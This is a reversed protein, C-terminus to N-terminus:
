SKKERVLSFRYYDIERAGALPRSFLAQVSGREFGLAELETIAGLVEDETLYAITDPVGSLSLGNLIAELEVRETPPTEPSLSYEIKRQYPSVYGKGLAQLIKLLVRDREWPQMRGPTPLVQLLDLVTLLNVGLMRSVFEKQPEITIDEGGLHRAVAVCLAFNVIFSYQGGHLGYCPKDPDGLVEMSDTGADLSTLRGGPALLRRAEKITAFAGLNVPVIVLDDIPKMFEAIVKRYPVRKWDIPGYEKEWIIEDLFAPQDRLKAVDRAGFDKVFAFWDPFERYKADSLNPRLREEILEGDKRLIIKTRLDSWLENCLIWHLSGDKIAAMDQVDAQLTAIHEQHPQLDPHTLAAQLTGRHNDVLVYQTRRYLHGDKDLSKLHSLFCAALNGNGCGWEQIVLRTPLASNERHAEHFDAALAHALRYDSGAMTQYYDRVRAGRLGYFIANLHVQWEDVPKFDGIFQAPTEDDKTLLPPPSM